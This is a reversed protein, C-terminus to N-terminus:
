IDTRWVINPLDEDIEDLRKKLCSRIADYDEIALRIQEPDQASLHQPFHIINLGSPIPVSIRFGSRPPVPSLPGTRRPPDWPGNYGEIEGHSPWQSKRFYDEDPDVAGSMMPEPQRSKKNPIKNTPSPETSPWDSSNQDNSDDDGIGKWSSLDSELESDRKSSRTPTLVKEIVPNQNALASSDEGGSIPQEHESDSEIM